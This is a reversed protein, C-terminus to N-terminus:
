SRNCAMRVVPHDSKPSVYRKNWTRHAECIAIKRGSTGFKEGFEALFRRYNEHIQSADNEIVNGFSTGRMGFGKCGISVDGNPKISYSSANKSDFVECLAVNKNGCGANYIEKQNPYNIAARGHYPSVIRLDYNINSSNSSPDNINDLFTTLITRFEDRGCIPSMIIISIESSFQKLLKVTAVMDKIYKQVPNTHPHLINFSLSVSVKQKLTQGIKALRDLALLGIEQNPDILGATTFSVKLGYDLVLVKVTDYLTKGHQEDQYILVEGDGLHVCQRALFAISDSELITKFLEWPMHRGNSKADIGCYNCGALCKETIHLNSIPLRDGLFISKGSPAVDMELDTGHEVIAAPM